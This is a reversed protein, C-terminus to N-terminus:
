KRLGSNPHYADRIPPIAQSIARPKKYPIPHSFASPIARITHTIAATTPINRGVIIPGNYIYIWNQTKQTKGLIGWEKKKFKYSLAKPFLHKENHMWTNNLFGSNLDNITTYMIKKRVLM